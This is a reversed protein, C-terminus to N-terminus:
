IDALRLGALETWVTASFHSQRRFRRDLFRRCDGFEAVTASKQSLTSLVEAILVPVQLQDKDHSYLNM